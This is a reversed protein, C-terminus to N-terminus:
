GHGHIAAIRREEEQRWRATDLGTGGASIGQSAGLARIALANAYLVSRTSLVVRRGLDRGIAAALGLTVIADAGGM